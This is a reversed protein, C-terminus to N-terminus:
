RTDSNSSLVSISMSSLFLILCHFSDAGSTIIGAKVFYTSPVFDNICYDKRIIVNALASYHVHNHLIQM